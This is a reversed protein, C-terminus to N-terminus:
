KWEENGTGCATMTVNAATKNKCKFGKSNILYSYLRGDSAKAQIVWNRGKPPSTTANLQKTTEDGDRVLITYKANSATSGTPVYVTGSTFGLYNFQRSKHQELDRALRQIEQQALSETSKRAFSQYAPVAIATLLSVVIVVIMLEVLTFGQNKNM